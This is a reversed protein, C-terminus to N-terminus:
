NVSYKLQLLKVFSGPDIDTSVELKWQATTLINVLFGTCVIDGKKGKLKLGFFKNLGILIFTLYGYPVEYRLWRNISEEVHPKCEDPCAYVNFRKHTLQSMPISHNRGGNLEALYVGSSDVKIIGVHTTKDKTFIHTLKHLISKNEMVGVIQGTELLPRVEDYNM